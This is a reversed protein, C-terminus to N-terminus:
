DRGSAYAAPDEKGTGFEYFNNYTTIDEFSNPEDTTSYPSKAQAMVTAPAAFLAATGVMLQRRNMWDAKPTVDAWGLKKTARM